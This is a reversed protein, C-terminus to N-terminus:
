PCLAGRLGTSRFRLAPPLPLWCLSRPVSSRPQKPTFVFSRPKQRAEDLNREVELKLDAAERVAQEGAIITHADQSNNIIGAAREADRRATQAPLFASLPNTQM